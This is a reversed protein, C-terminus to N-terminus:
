EAKKPLGEGSGSERAARNERTEVSHDFPLSLLPSEVVGGVNRNANGKLKLSLWRSM